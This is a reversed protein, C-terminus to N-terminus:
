RPLNPRGLDRVPRRCAHRDGLQRYPRLLLDDAARGRDVHEFGHTEVPGGPEFVSIKRLHPYEAVVRGLNDWLGAVMRAIESEPFEPFARSINRRADFGTQARWVPAGSRV